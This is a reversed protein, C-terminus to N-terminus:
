QWGGGLARYLSVRSQLNQLTDNVGALQASLLNQESLLVDNYNINPGYDLLKKTYDVARLLAAIQRTRAAAKEAAMQRSFLANSVEQGAVLVVNKFRLYAEEQQARATRYQQRFLGRNLIPATAGAILAGYFTNNFFGTLTNATAFGGNASLAIQPYFNTRAVNTLEFANRLAQEAAIVDPRFSLLQAPVGTPLSDTLIQQSLTARYITDPPLALLISLANETERINQKLQPLTAEAAYLNAESQAIDAGTLLAAEKLARVTQLFSRRNDITSQTIRLQQDYAMLAFYNNAIDAILQTQVALRAADSQFFSALAARRNSRLRGWVDVEWSANGLLSYLTYDAPQFNVNPNNARIQALSGRARRVEPTVSITPLFADRSQRLAAQAAEIRTAAIRLNLNSDIGRRILSQLQPDPFFTTWPIAAITTTDTATSGRYLSGETPLVDPRTYKKTIGCGALVLVAFISAPLLRQIKNSFFSINM